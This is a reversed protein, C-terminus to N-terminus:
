IADLYDQYTQTTATIGPDYVAGVGEGNQELEDIIEAHGGIHDADPHSSVLYDIRDIGLQDLTELVIEGEDRWDGSDILLTEGTPGVALLSAGQGVNLTYVSLTGNATASSPETTTEQTSTATPTPTEQPKELTPTPTADTEPLETCGAFLLLGGLLLIALLHRRRM